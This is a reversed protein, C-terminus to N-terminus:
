SVLVIYRCVSMNLIAFDMPTAIEEIRKTKKNRNSYSKLTTDFLIPDFRWMEVLDDEKEESWFEAM